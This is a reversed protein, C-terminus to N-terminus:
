NTLRPSDTSSSPGIVATPARERMRANFRPRQGFRGGTRSGTKPGARPELKGSPSPVYQDLSHRAGGQKVMM